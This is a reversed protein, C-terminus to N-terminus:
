NEIDEVIFLLEIVYIVPLMKTTYIINSINKQLFLLCNMNNVFIPQM